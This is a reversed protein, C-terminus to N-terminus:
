RLECTRGDCLLVVVAGGEVIVTPDGKAGTLRYTGAPVAGPLRFSIGKPDVLALDPADGRVM